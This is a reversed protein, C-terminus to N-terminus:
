QMGRVQGPEYSNVLEPFNWKDLNVGLPRKPKDEGTWLYVWEPVQEIKRCVRCAQPEEAYLGFSNGAPCNHWLATM